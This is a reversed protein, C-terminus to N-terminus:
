LKRLYWLLHSRRLLGRRVRSQLLKTTSISASRNTSIWRYRLTDLTCNPDDSTTQKTGRLCIRVGCSGISSRKSVKKRLNARSATTDGYFVCPLGAESYSWPMYAAPKFWQKPQLNWPKDENPIMTQGCTVASKLIISRWHEMLFLEFTLFKWGRSLESSIKPPPSCRDLWVLLWHKWFNSTTPKQTAMGFEGFVYLDEGKKTINHIFNEMFFPTSISSPM